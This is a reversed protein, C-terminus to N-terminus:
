GDAGGQVVILAHGQAGWRQPAVPKADHRDLFAVSDGREFEEKVEDVNEREGLDCGPERM